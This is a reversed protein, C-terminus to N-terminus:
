DIELLRCPCYGLLSGDKCEDGHSGSIEGHSCFNVYPDSGEHHKWKYSIPAPFLMASFM